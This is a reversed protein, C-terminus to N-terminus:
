KILERVRRRAAILQQQCDSTRDISKELECEWHSVEEQALELPTKSRTPTEDMWPEAIM